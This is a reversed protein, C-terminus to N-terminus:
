HCYNCRPHCKVGNLGCQCGGTTDGKGGPGWRPGRTVWCIETKCMSCRLWDCGWKKMLVVQCTPCAMAEGRVVMEELMEKTRRADANTESQQQVQEQYQKCNIGEHIAQCTLCNIVRCVPCRFENVNDEFICWGRCDPTKCHFTNGIKNEAQAVSKALHQEYVHQPVLAKIEREQLVSDCAYNNDRFPCKVEAEENFQVTNVLCPKCFTHLCDRLVVGEHRDCPTFCVSCDFPDTNPVLDTNDLNVLEQYHENQEPPAKANAEAELLEQDGQAEKRIREMEHVNARYEVPVVYKLPRETTCAACGPRTPSNMLTCVPCKWGLKMTGIDAHNASGGAVAVNAPTVDKQIATAAPAEIVVPRDHIIVASPQVLVPREGLEGQEEEEEEEEDEDEEEEENEREDDKGKRVELEPENLANLLPVQPMGKQQHLPLKAPSTDSREDDGEDDTAMESETDECFSYRDDEHNYYWGGGKEPPPPPPPPQAAPSAPAVQEEPLEPEAPAATVADSEQEGEPAVLYLFMPCGNTSVNHEELTKNDDSALMKGLIWRQVAVPIEFQQEVKQKLEAVTMGPTVQLPIPGQHSVKDEVYMDVTIAAPGPPARPKQRTVCCNIRLRALDRALLAAQHHQGGVIAAELRRLLRNVALTNVRHRGAEGEARAEAQLDAKFAALGKPLTLQATLREVESNDSTSCASGEPEVEAELEAEAEAEADAGPDDDPPPSAAASSSTATAADSGASTSALSENGRHARRRAPQPPPPPSAATPVNAYVHAGAAIGATKTAEITAFDRARILEFTRSPPVPAAGGGPCPPASPKGVSTYLLGGEAGAKASTGAGAGWLEEVTVPVASAGKGAAQVKRVVSATQCSTSVKPAKANSSVGAAKADLVKPVAGRHAQPELASSGGAVAGKSDRRPLSDKMEKLMEKLKKKEKEDKPLKLGAYVAEKGKTKGEPQDRSFFALRAKRVEDVDPAETAAPTSASSAAPAPGSATTAANGTKPAPALSPSAGQRKEDAKTRGGIFTSPLALKAAIKSDKVAEDNKPKTAKTAEEPAKSDTTTPRAPTEAAKSTAPTKGNAPFYRKLEREWDIGKSAAPSPTPNAVHNSVSVSNYTPATIPIPAPNSSPTPNSVSTPNSSTSPNSALASNSTLVTKSSSALAPALNSSVSPNSTPAVDSNNTDPTHNFAPSDSFSTFISNANTASEPIAADAPRWRGCADCTIRWRPNELTCRPCAWITLRKALMLADPGPPSSGLPLTPAPSPGEPQEDITPISPSLPRRRRFDRGAAAPEAAGNVEEEDEDVEQIVVDSGPEGQHNGVVTTTTTTISTIHKQQVCAGQVVVRQAEETTTTTAM